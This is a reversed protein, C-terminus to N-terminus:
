YHFGVVVVGLVATVMVAMWVPANKVGSSPRPPLPPRRTVRPVEWNCSDKSCCFHHLRKMGTTANVSSLDDCNFPDPEPVLSASCERIVSEVGYTGYDTMGKYYQTIFLFSPHDCMVKKLGRWHKKIM